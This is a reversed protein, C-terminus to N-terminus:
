SRCASPRRSSPCPSSAPRAATKVRHGRRGEVRERAIRQGHGAGEPQPGLVPHPQARPVPRRAAGRPRHQQEGPAGFVKLFIGLDRRIQIGGPQVHQRQVPATLAHGVAQLVIHPGAMDAAEQVILAVHDFHHDRCLVQVQRTGPVQQGMGHAAGDPKRREVAPQRDGARHEGRRHPADVQVANGLRQGQGQGRRHRAQAAAAMGRGARAALFAEHQQVREAVVQQGM